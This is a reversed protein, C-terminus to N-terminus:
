RREIRRSVPSAAFLRGRGDEGVQGDHATWLNAMTSGCGVCRTWPTASTTIARASPTLVLSSTCATSVRTWTRLHNFSFFFFSLVSATAARTPRKERRKNNDIDDCCSCFLSLNIFYLYHTCFARLFFLFVCVCVCVCVALVYPSSHVHTFLQKFAVHIHAIFAIFFYFFFFFKIDPLGVMCLFFFFFCLRKIFLHTFFFFFSPFVFFFFRYWKLDFLEDLVMCILEAPVHLSQGM